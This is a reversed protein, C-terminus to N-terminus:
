PSGLTIMSPPCPSGPRFPSGPVGTPIPTAISPPRQWCGWGTSCGWNISCRQGGPCGQGGQSGRGVPVMQHDLGGQVAQVWPAVPVKLLTQSPVHGVPAARPCSPPCTSLCVSPCGAAQLQEGTCHEQDWEHATGVSVYVHMLQQQRQATHLPVHCAHARIGSVIPETWCTRGKWKLLRAFLGSRGKDAKKQGQLPLLTVSPLPHTAGHKGPEEARRSLPGKPAQPCRLGGLTSPLVSGEPATVCSSVGTEAPDGRVQPHPLVELPAQGLPSDPGRALLSLLPSHPQPLRTDGPSLQAKKYPRGPSGPGRPGEPGGPRFPSFTLPRHPHEARPGSGASSELPSAWGWRMPMGMEHAHSDGKRIGLTIAFFTEWPRRAMRPVWSIPYTERSFTLHAPALTVPSGLGSTGWLTGAGALMPTQGAVGSTVDEGDEKAPGEPVAPPAPCSPSHHPSWLSARVKGEALLFPTQTSHWSGHQGGRTRSVGDEEQALSVTPCRALQSLHALLHSPALAPGHWEAADAPGPTGTARHHSHRTTATLAWHDRIPNPALGQLARPCCTPCPCHPMSPPLSGSVRRQKVRCPSRPTGPGSPSFTPPSLCSCGRQPLAQGARSCRGQCPTPPHGQCRGRGGRRWPSTPAGPRGPGDPLSTLRPLPQPATSGAGQSHPAAMGWTHMGLCQWGGSTEERAVPLELVPQGGPPSPSPLAPNWHPPLPSSPCPSSIVGMERCPSGPGGPLGTLSAAWRTLRQRGWGQSLSGHAAGLM